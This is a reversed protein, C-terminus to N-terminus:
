TPEMQYRLALMIYACFPTSINQTESYIRQDHFQGIVEFDLAM